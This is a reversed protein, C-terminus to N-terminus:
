SKRKRKLTKKILFDNRHFEVAMTRSMRQERGNGGRSALERAPRRRRRAMMVMVM